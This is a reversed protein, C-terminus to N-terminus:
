HSLFGHLLIPNKLLYTLNSSCNTTVKSFVFLKWEGLGCQDLVASYVGVTKLITEFVPEPIHCCSPDKKSEGFEDQKIKLLKFDDKMDMGNWTWWIRDGQMVSGLAIFVNNLRHM